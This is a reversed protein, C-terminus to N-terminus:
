SFNLVACDGKGDREEREVGDRGEEEREEGSEPSVGCGEGFATIPLATLPPDPCLGAM